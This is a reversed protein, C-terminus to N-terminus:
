RKGFKWCEFTYTFINIHHSFYVTKPSSSENSSQRETHLHLWAKLGRNVCQRRRCVGQMGTYVCGIM